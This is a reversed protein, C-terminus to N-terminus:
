GAATKRMIRTQLERVESEASEALLKQAITLVGYEVTSLQSRVARFSAETELRLQELSARNADLRDLLAQYQAETVHRGKRDGAGELLSPDGLRGFALVVLDQPDAAPGPWQKFRLAESIESPAPTSESVSIV